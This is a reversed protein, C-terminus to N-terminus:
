IACNVSFKMDINENLVFKQGAFVFLFLSLYAVVM